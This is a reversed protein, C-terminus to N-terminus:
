SDVHEQKEPAGISGNGWPWPVSHTLSSKAWRHSTFAWSADSIPPNKQFSHFRNVQSYSKKEVFSFFRRHIYHTCGRLKVDDRSFHYNSSSGKRKSFTVKWLPLSAILSWTHTHWMHRKRLPRWPVVDWCLRGIQRGKGQFAAGQPHGSECRRARPPRGPHPPPGRQSPPQPLSRLMTIKLLQGGTFLCPLPFNVTVMKSLLYM